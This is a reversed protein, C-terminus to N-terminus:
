NFNKPEQVIDILIPTNDTLNNNSSNNNKNDVVVNSDVVTNSTKPQLPETNNVDSSQQEKKLQQALLLERRVATLAFGLLNPGRWTAPNAAAPEEAKLGIGWINDFPSAEVLIFGIDDKDNSNYGIQGNNLELLYNRLQLHQTFKHINGKKVIEFRNAHWITEDFGKVARGLKKVRGPDKTQLIQEAIDENHQKNEGMAFLLAKQAMMWHEATHYVKGDVVMQAPYWQSLCAATINDSNSTHGWFM